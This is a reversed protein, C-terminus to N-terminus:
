LYPLLDLIMKDLKLLGKWFAHQKEVPLASVDCTRLDRRVRFMEFVATDVRGFADNNDNAPLSLARNQTMIM